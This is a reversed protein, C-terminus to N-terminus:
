AIEAMQDDKIGSFDLEDIYPRTIHIQTQLNLQLLYFGSVIVTYSTGEEIYIYLLYYGKFSNTTRDVWSEVQIEEYKASAWGLECNCDTSATSLCSNCVSEPWLQNLRLWTQEIM